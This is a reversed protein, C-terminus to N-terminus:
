IASDETWASGDTENEMEKRAEEFVPNVENFKNINEALMTESLPKAFLYGQYYDTDNRILEKVQEYTEVGEVILRMDATHALKVIMYLLFQHYDDIVVDDIFQKEVKLIEVPLSRLNSFNSYGTGFDDLAMKIELTSLREIITNTFDTSEVKQNETVELVLNSGPFGHMQMSLLVKSVLSEDAMQAPSLNIDLFFDEIEHLKLSACVKIAKDLVWYGLTSILSMQEAMRIFILPPIRGFEPSEWRCLAELGQWKGTKANVIPQFFVEFGIMGGTICNKLSIELEMDRKMIMDIEHDYVSVMSREKSIELTREITSMISEPSDFGARGDIVCVAAKCSIFSSEGDIRIEWPDHFREFIRDALGSASLIDAYDFLVCFTDGDMRYIEFGKLEFNKIWTIVAKLLSDGSGRGYADNIYRLGIFDFAILCYSDTLKEQLDHELKTRNPIDLYRDYFALRTLEDRLLKENSVDTITMIHAKKGPFWDIEQATCHGWIGLTPNYVESVRTGAKIIGACTNDVDRPCFSCRGEGPGVVFEWCKAGEMRSKEVGLNKVYYENVMLIDDTDYDVVYIYEMAADLIKRLVEYNNTESENGM